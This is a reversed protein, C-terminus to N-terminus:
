SNKMTKYYNGEYPTEIRLRSNKEQNQYLYSHLSSTTLVTLFVYRHIDVLLLSVLLLIISMSNIMVDGPWTDMRHRRRTNITGSLVDELKRSLKAPQYAGRAAM